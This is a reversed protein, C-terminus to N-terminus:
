TFSGNGAGTAVLGAAAIGLATFVPIARPPIMTPFIMVSTNRYATGANNTIPLMEDAMLSCFIFRLFHSLVGHFPCRHAEYLGVLNISFEAAGADTRVRYCFILYLSANLRKIEYNLM